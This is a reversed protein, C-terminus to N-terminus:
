CGGDCSGPDNLREDRWTTWDYMREVEGGQQRLAVATTFLFAAVLARGVLAVGEGLVAAGSTLTGVHEAGAVIALTVLAPVFHRTFAAISTREAARVTRVAHALTYATTVTLGVLEVVAVATPSAYLYTGWWALGFGILGVPALRRLSENLLFTREGVSQHVAQIGVACFLFVFLTAGRRFPQASPYGIVEIFGAIGYVVAAGIGVALYRWRTRYPEALLRRVYQRLYRLLGIGGVAVCLYELGQAVGIVTHFPGQLLSM